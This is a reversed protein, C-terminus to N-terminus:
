RPFPSFRRMVAGILKYTSQPVFRVLRTPGGTHGEDADTLAFIARSFLSPRWAQMRAIAGPSRREIAAVVAADDPAARVIERLAPYDLRAAALLENDVPSQGFIYLGLTGAEFARGKDITRGLWLIGDVRDNWRRPAQTTLDPAIEM